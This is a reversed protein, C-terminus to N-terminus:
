CTLHSASLEPSAGVLGGDASSAPLAMGDESTAVFSTMLPCMSTCLAYTLLWAGGAM